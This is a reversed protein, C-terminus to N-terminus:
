INTLVKAKTLPNYNTFIENPKIVKIEEQSGGMANFYKIEVYKNTPSDNHFSEGTALLYGDFLTDLIGVDKLFKTKTIM